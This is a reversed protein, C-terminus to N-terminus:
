KTSGTSFSLYFTILHCLVRDSETILLYTELHQMSVKEKAIWKALEQGTLKQERGKEEKEKGDSKM